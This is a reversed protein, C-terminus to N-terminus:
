PESSIEIVKGTIGDEGEDDQDGIGIRGLELSCRKM